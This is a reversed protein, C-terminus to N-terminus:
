STAAGEDQEHRYYTEGILGAKQARECGIRQHEITMALADIHHRKRFVKGGLNRLWSNAYLSFQSRWDDRDKGLAAVQARIATLATLNEPRIPLARLAADISAPLQEIAKPDTSM